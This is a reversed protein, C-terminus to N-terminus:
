NRSWSSRSELGELKLSSYPHSRCCEPSHLRPLKPSPMRRCTIKPSHTCFYGHKPNSRPLPPKPINRPLISMNQTTQPCLLHPNPSTAHYFPRTKPLTPPNKPIGNSLISMNKTTKPKSRSNLGIQGKHLFWHGKVYLETWNSRQAFFWARGLQAFTMCMVKSRSNNSRQVFIMCPWTAPNLVIYHKHIAIVLTTYLISIRLLTTTFWEM